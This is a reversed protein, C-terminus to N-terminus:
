QKKIQRGRYDIEYNERMIMQSVPIFGYGKQKLSTIIEPLIKATHKTDNHFLIISGKNVKKLVRNKIEEATIGPKWDLSDVDWQITYHNLERAIRVVDNNYDGYPPRFLEVDKGTIKKLVRDCKLIESKIASSNLSSMKYHSYSHNAVDHGEDAIMKVEDPNKEAWVGIIFFTAKVDHERLTNLIDPIDESGWACDFTLAVKKEPYDVSYIPIERKQQFAGVVDERSFYVFFSVALVIVALFAYKILNNVKVVYFKM